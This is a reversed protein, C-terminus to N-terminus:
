TTRRPAPRDPKTPARTTEPGASLAIARDRDYGAASTSHPAEDPKPSSGFVLVPARRGAITGGDSKPRTTLTAWTSAQDAGDARPVAM